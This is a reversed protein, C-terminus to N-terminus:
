RKKLARKKKQVARFSGSSYAGAGKEGSEQEKTSEETTVDEDRAKKNRHRALTPKTQKGTDHSLAESRHGSPVKTKEAVQPPQNPQFQRSLASWVSEGPNFKSPGDNNLNAPTFSPQPSSMPPLTRYKGEDPNQSDGMVKTKTVPAKRTSSLSKLAQNYRKGSNGFEFEVQSGKPKSRPAVPRILPEANTVNENVRGKGNTYLIEAVLGQYDVEEEDNLQARRFEPADGISTLSMIPSELSKDKGSKRIAESKQPSQPAPFADRSQGSEKPALSIMEVDNGPLRRNEDELNRLRVVLSEKESRGQITILILRNLTAESTELRQVTDRLAQCLVKREAQTDILEQNSTILNIQLDEVRRQLQESESTLQQYKAVALAREMSSRFTLERLERELNNCKDMTESNTRELDAAAIRLEEHGPSDKSTQALLKEELLANAAELREKQVELSRIRNNLSSTESLRLSNAANELDIREQLRQGGIVSIYEAKERDFNAIKECAESYLFDLSKAQSELRSIERNKESLHNNFSGAIQELKGNLESFDLKLAAISSDGSGNHINPVLSAIEESLIANRSQLLSEIRNCLLGESRNEELEHKLANLQVEKQTLKAQDLSRSEQMEELQGELHHIQSKLHEVFENGLSASDSTIKHSQTSIKVIDDFLKKCENVMKSYDSRVDTKEFISALGSLKQESRELGKNVVDEIISKIDHDRISLNTELQAYKTSLNQIVLEPIKSNSEKIKGIAREITGVESLQTEFDTLNKQTVDFLIQRQEIEHRFYNLDERAQLELTQVRDRETALLGANESLQQQLYVNAENLKEFGLLKDKTHSISELLECNKGELKQVVLRIEERGNRIDEREKCVENLLAKLKAYKEQLVKYDCGMGNFFKQLGDARERINSIKKNDKAIKDELQAIKNREAEVLRHEAKLALEKAMLEKEISEKEASLSNIAILLDRQSRNSDLADSPKPPTPTSPDLKNKGTVSAPHHDHHGRLNRNHSLGTRGSAHSSQVSSDPIASPLGNPRKRLRPGDERSRLVKERQAASYHIDIGCINESPGSGLASATASGKGEAEDDDDDLVIVAPKISGDPRGTPREGKTPRNMKRLPFRSDQTEIPRKRNGNPPGPNLLGFSSNSKLARTEDREATNLSLSSPAEKRAPPAFKFNQGISDFVGVAPHGAFADRRPSILEGDIPPPLHPDM